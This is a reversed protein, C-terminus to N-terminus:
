RINKEKKESITIIVLSIFRHLQPMSFAVKKKYNAARIPLYQITSKGVNICVILTFADKTTKWMRLTCTKWQVAVKEPISQRRVNLGM